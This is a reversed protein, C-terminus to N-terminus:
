NGELVWQVAFRTLEAANGLNLKTKIHERYTEVTKRSLDLNAAIQKTAIGRGIMELVELERDSLKDVPSGGPSDSNGAVQNLLRDTMRETLFVKGVLARRLAAILINPPENKNVYGMAGARLAREAYLLEDHMSVVLTKLEPHRAKIDKVLEIGNVGEGLSIDVIVLDPNREDIKQFGEDINSAEGCVSMDDEDEIVQSLGRRMVPHDDVILIKAVKAAPSIAM